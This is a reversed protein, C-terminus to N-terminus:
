SRQNGFSLHSCFGFRSIDSNNGIALFLYNFLYIFLIDLLFYVRRHKVM